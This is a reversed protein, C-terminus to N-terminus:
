KSYQKFTAMKNDNDLYQLAHYRSKIYSVMYGLGMRNSKNTIKELVKQFMQDITFTDATLPTARYLGNYGISHLFHGIKRKGSNQVYKSLQLEEDTINDNPAWALIAALRMEVERAINQTINHINDTEFYIGNLYGIIKDQVLKEMAKAMTVVNGMSFIDPAMTPLYNSVLITFIVDEVNVPSDALEDDVFRHTLVINTVRGVAKSMNDQDDQNLDFMLVNEIETPTLLDLVESMNWQTRSEKLYM